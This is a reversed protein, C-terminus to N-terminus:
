GISRCCKKFNILSINCSQFAPIFSFNLVNNYLDKRVFSFSSSSISSFNGDFTWITNGRVSIKWKWTKYIFCRIYSPVNEGSHNSKVITWHKKGTMVHSSPNMSIVCYLLYVTSLLNDKWIWYQMFGFMKTSNSLSLCSCCSLIYRILTRM